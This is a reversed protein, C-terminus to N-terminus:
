REVKSAQWLAPPALRTAIRVIFISLAGSNNSASGSPSEVRISRAAQQVQLSILSASSLDVRM